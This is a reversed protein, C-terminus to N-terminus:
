RGLWLRDYTAWDAPTTTGYRYIAVGEFSSIDGGSNLGATVGSLGSTMNEARDHFWTSDGTYTPLGILVRPPHPVASASELIYQTEQKVALAYLGATPMATNYAMVVLQDVNAAVASYYYSTWWAGAHGAQFAWDAIHANPAWKQAAVSILAGPPLVARTARLLDIFRPNNNLIPEIDYHVGDMGASTFGRATAVIRTRTASDDLNVVQGAPLGSAAELQGIWAL